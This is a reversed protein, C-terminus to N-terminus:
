LALRRLLLFQPSCVWNCGWDNAGVYILVRIGRDLLGAIQYKSPFYFDLNNNFAQNVQDSCTTFNGIIASDVGLTKRVGPLNLYSTITRAHNAILSSSRRLLM